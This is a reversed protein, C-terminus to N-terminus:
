KIRAIVPGAAGESLTTIGAVKSVTLGLIQVNTNGSFVVSGTTSFSANGSGGVELMNSTPAVGIGVNTGNDQIQSSAALVGTATWRTVFDTTGSGSLGSGSITGTALQVWASTTNNWVKYLSGDFYLGGPTTMGVTANAPNAPLTAHSNFYSVSSLNVQNDATFSDAVIEFESAAAGRAAIGVFVATMAALGLLRWNGVKSIKKM